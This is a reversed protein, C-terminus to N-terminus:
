KDCPHDQAAEKSAGADRDFECHRGATSSQEPM